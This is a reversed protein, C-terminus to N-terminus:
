AARYGQEDSVKNVIRKVERSMFQDDKVYRPYIPLRERPVAGTAEIAKRLESVSPWPCDPNIFDPTVASVGGLDNAGARIFDGVDDVLNPPVQINTAPILEKAMVITAVLEKKSPKPKNELPTGPKPDLPQIIVEQIHDYRSQLNRIALLSNVRDETNEGIGVLIGTTFPIKLKGAAELMRLRLEPDKGPSEEHAPLPTACELMLGMSANYRRLRKLEAEDLLGANTHPLLGLELIQKCIDVLYDVTSSYGFGELKELVEPYVEPREGLTILAESCGKEKGRKALTIVDEQSMLWDGDGKDRRFGCYACKNRCVNTVPLFVNRSYSVESVM